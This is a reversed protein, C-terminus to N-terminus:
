GTIPTGQATSLAILEGTLTRAEAVKTTFMLPPQGEWVARHEPQDLCTLRTRYSAIQNAIKDNM